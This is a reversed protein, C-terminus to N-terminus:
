LIWMLGTGLDIKWCVLANEQTGFFSTFVILEFGIRRAHKLLFRKFRFSFVSRQEVYDIENQFGVYSKSFLFVKLITLSLSIRKIISRRCSSIILLCCPASTTWLTWLDMVQNTICWHFHFFYSAIQKKKLKWKNRIIKKVSRLIKKKRSDNRISDLNWTLRILRFSNSINKLNQM